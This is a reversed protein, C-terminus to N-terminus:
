GPYFLILRIVLLAERERGEGAAVGHLAATAPQWGFHLFAPDAIAGDLFQLRSFSQAQLCRLELDLLLMFGEGSLHGDPPVM